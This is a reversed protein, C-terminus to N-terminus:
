PIFTTSVTPTVSSDGATANSSGFSLSSTSLSSASATIANTITSYSVSGYTLNAGAVSYTGTLSGDNPLSWLVNDDDGAGVNAIKYTIYINGFTDTAISPGNQTAGTYARQYSINGSADFKIFNPKGATSHALYSGGDSDVAVSIFPLTFDFTTGLNIGKTWQITGSNNLKVMHIQDATDDVYCGVYINDSTDIAMSYPYISGSSPTLLRQWQIAGSSNYKIVHGNDYIAIIDGNSDTVIENSNAATVLQEFQLTGSSNYKYLIGDDSSGYINGASDATVSFGPSFQSGGYRKKLELNGDLDYRVIGAQYNSTTDNGAVYLKDGIVKVDRGAEGSAYSKSFVRTGDYAFKHTVWSNTAFRTIGTFYVNAQSDTTIAYPEDDASFGIVQVYNLPVIAGAAAQSNIVGLLILSM